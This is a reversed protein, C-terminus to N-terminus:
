NPPTVGIEIKEGLFRPQKNLIYVDILAMLRALKERVIATLRQNGGDPLAANFGIAHIGNAQALFIARENHFLQSIIIFESLGFIMKARVISDLTRFGAYDRYLKQEPVGKKILDQRIMTPEDYEKRSNDGSILFFDVKHAKFLKEAADIRLRYYSNVNGNSLFPATGLILGVRRAPILDVNEYCYQTACNSIYSDSFVISLILITLLILSVAFIKKGKSAYQYAKKLCAVTRAYVLSVRGTKSPFGRSFFDTTHGENTENIENLKHLM